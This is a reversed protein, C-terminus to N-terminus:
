ERVFLENQLREGVGITFCSLRCEFDSGHFWRFGNGGGRLGCDHRLEPSRDPIWRGFPTAWIQESHASRTSPSLGRARIWM